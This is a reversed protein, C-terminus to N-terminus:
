SLTDPFPNMVPCSNIWIKYANNNEKTNPVLFPTNLIYCRYLIFFLFCIYIKVMKCLVVLISFGIKRFNLCPLGPFHPISYTYNKFTNRNKNTMIKKSPLRALTLSPFNKNKSEKLGMKNMNHYIEYIKYKECWQWPVFLNNFFLLHSRMQTIKKQNDKNNNNSM